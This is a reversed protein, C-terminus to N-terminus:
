KLKEAHYKAVLNKVKLTNPRVSPKIVKMLQKDDIRDLIHDNVMKNQTKEDIHGVNRQLQSGRKSIKTALMVEREPPPTKIKQKQDLGRLIRVTRDM